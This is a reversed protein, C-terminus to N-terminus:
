WKRKKKVKTCNPGHQGGYSGGKGGAPLVADLVAAAGHHVQIDRGSGVGRRTDHDRQVVAAAVRSVRVGLQLTFGVLVAPKMM